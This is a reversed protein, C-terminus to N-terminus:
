LESFNGRNNQCVRDRSKFIQNKEKNMELNM